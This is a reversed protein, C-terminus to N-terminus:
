ELYLEFRLYIFFFALPLVMIPFLLNDVFHNCPKDLTPTTTDNIIYCKRIVKYNELKPDPKTFPFQNTPNKLDYIVTEYRREYVNESKEDVNCFGNELSPRVFFQTTKEVLVDEIVCESEISKYFYECLHYNEDPINTRILALSVLIGFWCLFLNTRWGFM